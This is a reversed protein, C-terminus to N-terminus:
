LLHLDEFRPAKEIFVFTFQFGIKVDINCLGYIWSKGRGQLLKGKVRLHNKEGNKRLFHRPEAATSLSLFEHAM